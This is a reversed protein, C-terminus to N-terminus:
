SFVPPSLDSSGLLYLEQFIQMSFLSIKAFDRLASHIQVMPDLLVRPPSGHIKSFHHKLLFPLTPLSLSGFGSANLTTSRLFHHPGNIRAGTTNMSESNPSIPTPQQSFTSARLGFHREPNLGPCLGLDCPLLPRAYLALV